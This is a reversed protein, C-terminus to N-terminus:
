NLLKNHKESRNNATYFIEYFYFLIEVISRSQVYIYNYLNYM